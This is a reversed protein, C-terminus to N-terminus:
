AANNIWSRLIAAAADPDSSVMDTLDDKLTDAKKLKLKPRQFEEEDEGTEALTEGDLQLAPLGHVNSDKSGSSVMSRLMVLSFVALGAMALTNANQSLWGIAGTALSPEPLPAQPLDRFFKVNVQRYSNEGLSLRPLLPQVIEEVTTKVESQVTKLLEPDVEEPPQGNPGRNQEEYVAEVYSMPVAVSADAEKLAFGTSVTETTTVGVALKQDDANSTKKVKDSRALADDRPVGNPGNAEAGVRDGALGSIQEETTDLRDRSLGVPNGIPETAVVRQESTSDVKANVEVRVGAIYALQSRIATRIRQEERAKVRYYPLEYDEPSPGDESAISDVGLNTVEVHEMPVDCAKSVFSKVTRMRRNSFEEGAIPMVSVAATAHRSTRLGKEDRVNHIVNARDIWPFESLILSVRRENAVRIRQLKIDRFDFMGGGDMGEKMIRNIDPPLQNESAIAAIAANKDSRAVKIRNGEVTYEINASSLAGEMGPLQGRRIPEGGFLYQDPGANVQQFLFGLSIVVVAVLLGATVRAGPTMSAFLDRVQASTQNFFDM